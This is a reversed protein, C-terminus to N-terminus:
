YVPDRQPAPSNIPVGLLHNEGAFDPFSSFEISYSVFAEKFPQNAEISAAQLSYQVAEVSTAAMALPIM